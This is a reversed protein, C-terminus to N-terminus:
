NQNCGIVDVFHWWDIEPHANFPLRVKRFFDDESSEDPYIGNDNTTYILMENNKTLIVLVNSACSFGLSCNFLIFPEALLVHIEHENNKLFSVQEMYDNDFQRMTDIVHNIYKRAREM